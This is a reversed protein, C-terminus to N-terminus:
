EYEFVRRFDASSLNQMCQFNNDLVPKMDRYVKQIKRDSWKSITTIVKEIEVIQYDAPDETYGEDWWKEFTQFGLKKLNNLYDQPGQVIFPTKLLIPRWTKETPYFTNGTFYTEAVIEVFFNHYVKSINMNAPTLIPCTEVTEIQFPCESLTQICESVLSWDKNNQILNTIGCHPRHFDRKRDYHCTYLSHKKHKNHLFNLLELRYNNLRGIFMAFIKFGSDFTKDPFFNANVFDNCEEVYLPPNRKIKYAHHTEIQNCTYIEIKAPDIDYVDVIYDLLKYLGLAHNDPGEANLDIIIKGTDEYEKLIDVVKFEFNWIISDINPLNIM